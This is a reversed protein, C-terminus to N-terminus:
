AAEDRRVLTSGLLATEIPLSDIRELISQIKGDKVKIYFSYDQAYTGYTGECVGTALIVGRDGEVVIDETTFTPPGNVFLSGIVQLFEGNIVIKPGFEKSVSTKGGVTYTGDETFMDFAAVFDGALLLNWYSEITERTSM